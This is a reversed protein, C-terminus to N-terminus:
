WLGGMGGFPVDGGLASDADGEDDGGEEADGPTSRAAAVSRLDVRLGLALSNLGAALGKWGRLGEVGLWLRGCM